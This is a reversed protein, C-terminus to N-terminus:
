FHHATLHHFPDSSDAAYPDAHITIDVLASVHHLLEHRVNETIKAETVSILPSVAICMEAFYRHGVRHVKISGVEKVGEVGNAVTRM